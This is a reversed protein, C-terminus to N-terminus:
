AKKESLGLITAKIADVTDGSLGRETMVREVAKAADKAFAARIKLQADVDSKLGAAINRFAEAMVKVADLDVEGDESVHERQAQLLLGQLSQGVLRGVNNEPETGIQAVIAQAMINSDRIHRAVEEFKQKARGVASKSVDFGREQLYASIERVGIRDERFLRDLETRLEPPLLRLKSKNPM